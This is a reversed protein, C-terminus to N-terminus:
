SSRIEQLLTMLSARSISLHGSQPAKSDRVGVSIGLDAVELCDGGSSGAGSHTSKRWVIKVESAGVETPDARALRGRNPREGGIPGM